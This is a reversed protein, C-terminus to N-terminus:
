ALALEFSLLTILFPCLSAAAAASIQAITLALFILLIYVTTATLSVSGGPIQFDFNTNQTSVFCVAPVLLLFNYAM